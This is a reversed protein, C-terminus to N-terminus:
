WLLKISYDKFAADASVLHTDEVMSQAILLRDFPDKHHLPLAGLQIVHPLEVPLVLVGNAQQTQFLQELSTSFRIKGLQAKIQLEWASAVSVLLTTEPDKCLTVVSGPLKEPTDAWWLFAHTDLLLRM